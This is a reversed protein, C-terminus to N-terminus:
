FLTTGRCNFREGRGGESTPVAVSLQHLFDDAQPRVPDFDRLGPARAWSSGCGAGRGLSSSARRDNRVDSTERSGEAHRATQGTLMDSVNVPQLLGEVQAELIAEAQLGAATPTIREFGGMMSARYQVECSPADSTVTCSGPNFQGVPRPDVHWFAICFGTWLKERRRLEPVPVRHTRM